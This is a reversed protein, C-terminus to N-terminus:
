LPTWGEKLKANLDVGAEILQNVIAIHGNRAAHHLPTWGEKTEANPNSGVGMLRNFVPLDDREVAEYLLTRGSDDKKSYRRTIEFLSASSPRKKPDTYMCQAIAATSMETLAPCILKQM